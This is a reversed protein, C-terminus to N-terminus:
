RGDNTFGPATIGLRQRGATNSWEFCTFGATFCSWLHSTGWNDLDNDRWSIMDNAVQMEGVLTMPEKDTDLESGPM